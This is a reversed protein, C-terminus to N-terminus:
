WYWTGLWVGILKQYLGEGGIDIVGVELARGIKLRPAGKFVMINKFCEHLWQKQCSYKQILVDVLAKKALALSM